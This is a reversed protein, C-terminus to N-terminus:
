RRAQQSPASAAPIELTAMTPIERSLVFIAQNTFRLFAGAQVPEVVELLEGGILVPGALANTKFRYFINTVGSPPMVSSFSLTRQLPVQSLLKSAGAPLPVSVGEFREDTFVLGNVNWGGQGAAPPPIIQGGLHNTSNQPSPILMASAQGSARLVRLRFSTEGAESRVIGSWNADNDMLLVAHTQNGGTHYTGAVDEHLQLIIAEIEEVNLDDVIDLPIAATTGNLPVVGNRPHSFDAGNTATSMVSISYHLQGAYHRNFAVPVSYSGRGESIQSTPTAFQVEPQASRTPRSAASLPNSGNTIELGDAYGDGDTDSVSPNTGRVAEESDSLGDGDSDTDLRLRFFRMGTVSPVTALWSPGGLSSIQAGPANSWVIPANLAGSTELIYIRSLSGPRTDTFEIAAMNGIYELRDMTLAGQAAGTTPLWGLAFAIGLLGVRWFASTTTGPPAFRYPTQVLELSSCLRPCIRGGFFGM